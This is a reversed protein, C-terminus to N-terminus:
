AKRHEWEAVCRPCRRRHSEDAASGRLDEGCAPCLEEALMLQVATQKGASHGRLNLLIMALLSGMFLLWLGTFTFLIQYFTTPPFNRQIQLAGAGVIVAAAPTAIVWSMVRRARASTRLRRRMDILRTRHEETGALRIARQFDGDLLACRRGAADHVWRNSWYGRRPQVQDILPREDTPMVVARQKVRDAGWAAGCEACRVRGHGDAPTDGVHYLCVPCVGNALFVGAVQHEYKRFRGRAFIEFLIVLGSTVGFMVICRVLANSGFVGRGVVLLLGMTLGCVGGLIVTSKVSVAQAVPQMALGYLYRTQEDAGELVSARNVKHQVGEDDVFVYARPLRRGRRRPVMERGKGGCAFLVSARSLGSGESAGM